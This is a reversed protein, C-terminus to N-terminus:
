WLFKKILKVRRFNELPGFSELGSWIHLEVRVSFTEYHTKSTLLKKKFKMTFFFLSVLKYVPVSLTMFQFNYNVM